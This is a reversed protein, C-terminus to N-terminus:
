DNKAENQKSEPDKDPRESTTQMIKRLRSQQAESLEKEPSTPNALRRSFVNRQRFYNMSTIVELVDLAKDLENDKLVSHALGVIQHDRINGFDAAGKNEEFYEFCKWAFEGDGANLGVNMVHGITQGTLKLPFKIRFNQADEIVRDYLSKCILLFDEQLKESYRKSGMMRVAQDILRVNFKQGMLMMDSWIQPIHHQAQNREVARMLLSLTPSAPTYVHPAVKKYLDMINEINDKQFTLMLYSTYYAHVNNHPGLLKYNDGTNLIEDLKHALYVNEVGAHLIEMCSSFFELDDAHRFSLHKGFIDTVVGEVLTKTFRTIIDPDSKENEPKRYNDKLLFHWTGLSPEIECRKMENIIMMSYNSESCKPNAVIAFLANNFTNLSPAVGATKMDNLVEEILQWCTDPSDKLLGAIRLISDYTAAQLPINNVQAETYLDYANFVNLYKARGRILANYSRADKEELSAWLKEAFGEDEGLWVNKDPKENPMRLYEEYSSRTEPSMQSNNACLLDMLDAVTSTAVANGAEMNAMYAKYAPTVSRQQIREKIGEETNEPHSLESRAMFADVRPVALEEKFYKPFNDVVYKAAQQGSARSLARIRKEQNTYPILNPDDVFKYHPGHWDKNVTGSLAELIATDSRHIKQPIRISKGTSISSYACHRSHPSIGVYFLKGHKLHTSCQAFSRYFQLQLSAM